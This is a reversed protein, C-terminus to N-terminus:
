QATCSRSMIKWFWCVYCAQWSSDIWTSGGIVPVLWPVFSQSFLSIHVSDYIVSIHKIVELFISWQKATDIRAWVDANRCPHYSQGKWQQQRFVLAPLHGDYVAFFGFFLDEDPLVLIAFMVWSGKCFKFSTQWVIENFLCACMCFHSSSYSMTQEKM